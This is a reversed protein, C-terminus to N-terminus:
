ADSLSSARQSQMYARRASAMAYRVRLCRSLARREQWVREVHVLAAAPVREDPRCDIRAAVTACVDLPLDASPMTM